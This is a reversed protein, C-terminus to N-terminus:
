HNCRCSKTGEIVKDAPNTIRPLDLDDGFRQGQSPDLWSPQTTPLGGILAGALEIRGSGEPSPIASIPMPEMDTSVVTNREGNQAASKVVELGREEGHNQLMAVLQRLLQTPMKVAFQKIQRSNPSIIQKVIEVRDSFDGCALRYSLRKAKKQLIVPPIRHGAMRCAAAVQGALQEQEEPAIVPPASPQIVELMQQKLEDISIELQESLRKAILDGPIIQDSTAWPILRRSWTIARATSLGDVKDMLWKALPVIKAELEGSAQVSAEEDSEQSDSDDESDEEPAERDNTNDEEEDGYDDDDDSDLEEEHRAPRHTLQFLLKWLPKFANKLMWPNHEQLFNQLDEPTIKSPNKTAAYFEIVDGIVQMVKERTLKMTSNDMADSAFLMHSFRRDSGEVYGTDVDDQGHFHNEFSARKSAQITAVLADLTSNLLQRAAAPEIKLGKNVLYTNFTQFYNEDEKLAEVENRRLNNHRVFNLVFDRAIPPLDLAAQRDLKNAMQKASFKPRRELIPKDGSASANQLQQMMRRAQRIDKSANELEVALRRLDASRYKVALRKAMKSLMQAAKRPDASPPLPGVMRTAKRFGSFDRVQVAYKKWKEIFKKIGVPEGDEPKDLKVVGALRM